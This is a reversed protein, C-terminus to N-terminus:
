SGMIWKVVEEGFEEALPQRAYPNIILQRRAPERCLVAYGPLELRLAMACRFAASITATESQVAREPSDHLGCDYDFDVLDQGFEIPAAQELGRLYSDFRDWVKVSALFNKTRVYAPAGYENKIFAFFTDV